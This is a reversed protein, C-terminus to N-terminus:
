IWDFDFIVYDWRCIGKKKRKKRMTRCPFKEILIKKGEKDFVEIVRSIRGLLVMSLSKRHDVTQLTRRHSWMCVNKWIDSILDEAKM